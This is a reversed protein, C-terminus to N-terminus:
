LTMVDESILNAVLLTKAKTGSIHGDSTMFRYQYSIESDPDMALTEEQGFFYIFSNRESDTEVDGLGYKAIHKGRNSSITLELKVVDTVLFDTKKITVQISPTTGQLIENM